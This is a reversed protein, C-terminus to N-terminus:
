AVRGRSLLFVVGLIGLALLGQQLQPSHKQDHCETAFHQCNYDILKWKKGISLRAHDIVRCSPINSPYGKSTIRRGGSFDKENEELVHGTRKSASIITRYGTAVGYHQISFGINVAVIEGERFM